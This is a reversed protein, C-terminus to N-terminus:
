KWVLPSPLPLCQGAGTVGVSYSERVIQFVFWSMGWSWMKPLTIRRM